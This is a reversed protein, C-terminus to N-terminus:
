KATGTLTASQTGAATGVSVTATKTGAAESTRPKFQLTVTCSANHALTTFGAKGCTTTLAVISFDATNAGTLSAQSIGTLTAAGNNTLTFVQAPDL